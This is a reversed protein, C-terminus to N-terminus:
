DVVLKTTQGGIKILYIGRPLSSNIENLGEILERELVIRGQANYIQALNSLPITLNSLEIFFSGSNPNPYIVFHSAIEDINSTVIPLEFNAEGSTGSITVTGAIADNPIKVIIMGSTVTIPAVCTKSGKSKFCVLTVGQLNTGNATINKGPFCPSACVVNSVVPLVIPKQIITLISNNIIIAYNNISSGTATALIIYSGTISTNTVTSNYLAVVEDGPFIGSVSGNFIPLADGQTITKPFALISASAPAINVIGTVTGANNADNIIGVITYTGANKPATTSGNFTYNIGIATSLGVVNPVIPQGNYVSSQLGIPSTLTSVFVKPTISLVSNSISFVYNNTNAGSATAVISYNGVGSLSTAATSLGLVVADNNIVGLITGTFSPLAEGYVKTSNFGLITASKPNITLTGNITTVAYNGINVANPTIQQTIPYIGPASFQTATTSYSVPIADNNVIGVVTGSLTPNPEGYTKSANSSQIILNAKTITLTGATTTLDYNSLAAGTVSPYISYLGAGLLSTNQNLYFNFNIVDGNVFGSKNGSLTPLPQGYVITYSNTSVSAPKKNVIVLSTITVGNYNANGANSWKAMATGAKRGWGIQDIACSLDLADGSTSYTVPLNSSTFQTNVVCTPSGSYTGTVTQSFTSPYNITQDAKIVTIVGTTTVGFWSGNGSQFATITVVGVGIAIANSGSISIVSPNSSSASVTLGSTATITFLSGYSATNEVNIFQADKALLVSVSISIRNVVALDAKGDGNLDGIAVSQPMNGTAYDLKAAFSGTGTNTFVSVSNSGANAVALDAMGDGNLDGIAVSNPSNGTTYDVKTGFSGTGTNTFISVTSSNGNTVALDSKGDGNLDGIAISRPASGTTYDVKAGFSGNGTNTLVSVTQSARNAVALDPEGDDNLDSIAVSIPVVGTSYDVKTGFSGTGTNTFVSVTSSGSNAVALDPKGDGNLDGIAVSWPFAGTDYDIKAGFSGNGTNTLVSVTNSGENAVALDPKGDGNLDGIAVSWPGTGTAYDVKTSFSGNGTNTFVSLSSSNYNVVALDAKGDGNFDGIAVSRPYNGTAYDVKTDFTRQANVTFLNTIFIAFISISLWYKKRM